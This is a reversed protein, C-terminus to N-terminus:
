LFFYCCLLFVTCYIRYIAPPRNSTIFPLCCNEQNWIQLLLTHFETLGLKLGKRRQTTRHETTIKIIIQAQIEARPRDTLSPQQLLRAKDVAKDNFWSKRCVFKVATIRILLDAHQSKRNLWLKAFETIHSYYLHFVSLVEAGPFFFFFCFDINIKCNLKLSLFIPMNQMQWVTLPKLSNTNKSHLISSIVTANHQSM